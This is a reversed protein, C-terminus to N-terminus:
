VWHWVKENPKKGVYSKERMESWETGANLSRVLRSVEEDSVTGGKKDFLAKIKQQKPSLSEKMLEEQIISRIYRRILRENAM